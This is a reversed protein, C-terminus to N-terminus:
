QCVGNDCPEPAPAVEDDPLELADAVGAEVKGLQPNARCVLSAGCVKDGLCCIDQATACSAGAPVCAPAKAFAPLSFLPLACLFFLISKM